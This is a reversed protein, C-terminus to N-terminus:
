SPRLITGPVGIPALLMMLPRDLHWRGGESAAFGWLYSFPTEKVSWYTGYCNNPFYRLLCWPDVTCYKNCATNIFSGLPVTEHFKRKQAVWPEKKEWNKGRDSRVSTLGCGLAMGPPLGGPPQCDATPQPSTPNLSPVAPCCDPISGRLWWAQAVVGGQFKRVSTESSIFM